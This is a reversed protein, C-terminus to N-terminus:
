YLQWTKLSIGAPEDPTRKTVMVAVTSPDGGANHVVISLWGTALQMIDMAERATMGECSQNQISHLKDSFQFQSKGFLGSPDLASIRLTEDEAETVWIGLEFLDGEDKWITAGL